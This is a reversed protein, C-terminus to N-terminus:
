WWVYEVDECVARSADPTEIEYCFSVRIGM